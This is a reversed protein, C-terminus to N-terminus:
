KNVEAPLALGQCNVGVHLVRSITYRLDTNLVFRINCYSM